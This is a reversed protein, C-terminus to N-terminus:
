LNQFYCLPLCLLAGVPLSISVVRNPVRPRSPMLDPHGIDWLLLLCRLGLTEWVCFSFGPLGMGGGAILLCGRWSCSSFWCWPLSASDGSPTNVKWTPSSVGRGASFYWSGVSPRSGERVSAPAAGPSSGGQSVGEARLCCWCPGILAGKASSSGLLGFIGCRSLFHFLRQFYLRGLWPRVQCSVLLIAAQWGALNWHPESARVPFGFHGPSWPFNGTM